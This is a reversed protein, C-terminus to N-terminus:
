VLATAPIGKVFIEDTIRQLRKIVAKGYNRHVPVTVFGTPKNYLSWQQPQIEGSQLKAADDKDLRIVRGITQAMEVVNLNRLMICHTLGPVNIGESLISYHFLVFKRQKDKGWATLTDFFVERSVKTKNVYAGFKSTVHLVDYGRDSLESLIDTHGLINGLVRSSPVAVLVKAADTEDLQDIIDQVTNSHVMHPNKKDVVHDTEFPVITPPLIHGGQILEPAPVNELVPGFIERNNMGRDHKNSVRPTATFFYKQVAVMSMAAVSVFFHKTCANHAEDFYIADVDIGSDVVRRLSHYTTFIICSENAARATDNFLALKDSNTTSFHHTEGSHCHAVHTWTTPIFQLFEESLQNALLIRPAVVVITRPGNNLLQRCHEIMIITKGGGTPVIIQGHDAASM